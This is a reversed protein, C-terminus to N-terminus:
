AWTPKEVYAALSPEGLTSQLRWIDLYYRAASEIAQTHHFAEAMSQGKTFVGHWKLIAANSEVLADAMQEDVAEWRMFEQAAVVEIRAGLYILGNEDIPSFENVFFSLLASYYPHSHIIAKADTKHYIARHMSLVSSANEVPEDSFIAARILREPVLDKKFSRTRTIILEDGLRASLNGGKLHLLGSSVLMDSYVTMDNAIQEITEM